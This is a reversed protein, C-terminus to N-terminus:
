LDENPWYGYDSGDGPHSTFSHGEPSYKDLNDFLDDLVYQAEESEFWDTPVGANLDCLAKNLNPNAKWYARAAQPDEKFWKSVFTPILDRPNMTGHSVSGPEAEDMMEKIVSSVSREIAEDVRAKRQQQKKLLSQRITEKVISRIQSESLEVIDKKAM